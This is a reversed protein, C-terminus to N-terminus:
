KILHMRHSQHFKGSKLIYFYIGSPMQRDNDDQGNWVIKHWGAKIQDDLLTRIIQGYMNYIVLTARDDQPLSFSITTTPNFPNPYNQELTFFTPKESNVTIPGHFNLKGDYEINAVKYFYTRNKDTKYDEFHYQHISLSTGAGPILIDNIKIYQGDISESRYIHFGLNLTESLTTWNILVSSGNRKAEFASLEVPLAIDLFELPLSEERGTICDNDEDLVIFDTSDPNMNIAGHNSSVKYRITVRVINVRNSDINQRLGSTYIYQYFIRGYTSSTQNNDYSEVRNSYTSDPFFPQSFNVDTVYACFVPDLYFKGHFENIAHVAEDTSFANVDLVLIGDGPISTDSSNNIYELKTNIAPITIPKFTVTVHKDTNIIISEPNKQTCLDGSWRKFKWGSDAIANLYVMDQSQYDMKVLQKGINVFGKGVVDINLSYKTTSESAGTIIISFAQQGSSLTDKHMVTIQYEGAIPAPITVQEVNDSSNDGRTAAASPFASNLRWPMTTQNDTVRTIRLDLDNVLMPTSPNLSYVPTGAPDTWCITAKLPESGDAHVILNYPADQQLVLEQLRIPVTQNQSIVHAAAEINLLGWGARYDPGDNSGSERATHIVLAKLTAARLKAGAYINSFHQQLLALSGTACPAAMSTGDSTYYQNDGTGYCSYVGIGDTVIDPKIRGDDTPGWSSFASMKAEINVPAYNGDVIDDIAGVTIVNKGVADDVICDYPGDPDRPISSLTRFRGNFLWYQTNPPPGNDSRDNGASKIILYYPANYAIKDMDRSTSTYLGFFYDKTKSVNNDGVWVWRKDGFLNYVWGLAHGYSHNSLLLGKSAESAMESADNNWDYAHLKAQSAMGKAKHVIGNAIMTGAVHTSHLGNKNANDMQTVRNNFEQHTTRVGDGDWICLTIGDGSLSLGALGNPWVRDASITTAANLNFTTNYLPREQIYSVLEFITGNQDIKKSELNQDKAWEEAKLKDAYYQNQLQLSQMKLEDVNTQRNPRDLAIAPGVWMLAFFTVFFIKM